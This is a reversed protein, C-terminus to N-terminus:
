QRGERRLKEHVGVAQICFVRELRRNRAELETYKRYKQCEKPSDYKACFREPL